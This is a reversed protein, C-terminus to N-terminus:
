IIVLQVAIEEKFKFACHYINPVVTKFENALNSIILSLREQVSAVYKRDNRIKDITTPFLGTMLDDFKENKVTAHIRKINFFLFIENGLEM